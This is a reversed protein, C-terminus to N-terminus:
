PNESVRSDDAGCRHRKRGFLEIFECSFLQQLQELLQEREYRFDLPEHLTDFFQFGFVLPPFVSGGIRAIGRLRRRAILFDVPWRLFFALFTTRGETMLLKGTREYVIWISHNLKRGRFALMTQGIQAANPRFIELAPLDRLQGRGLGDDNFRPPMMRSAWMAQCEVSCDQRFTQFGLSAKPRVQFRGHDEVFLRLMQANLSADLRHAIQVADIQALARDGRDDLAGSLLCGSASAMLSCTMAPWTMRESSVLARTLAFFQHCHTKM